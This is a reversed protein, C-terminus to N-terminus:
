AVLGSFAKEWYEPGEAKARQVNEDEAQLEALATRFRDAQFAHMSGGFENQKTSWAGKEIMADIFRAGAEKACGRAKTGFKRVSISVKDEFILVLEGHPYFRPAVSLDAAPGAVYYAYVLDTLESM